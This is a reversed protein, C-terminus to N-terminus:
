VRRIPMPSTSASSTRTARLVATTSSRSRAQVTLQQFQELTLNLTTGEYVQLAGIGTLDTDPHLTVTPEEIVTVVSVTLDETYDALAFPDENLDQLALFGEVDGAVDLDDGIVSFNEPGIDAAQAVSMEVEAGNGIDRRSSM